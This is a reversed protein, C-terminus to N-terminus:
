YSAFSNIAVGPDLNEVSRPVNPAAKVTGLTLGSKGNVVISNRMLLSIDVIRSYTNLAVGHRSTEHLSNVCHSLSCCIVSSRLSPLVKGKEAESAHYVYRSSGFLPLLVEYTVGKLVSM